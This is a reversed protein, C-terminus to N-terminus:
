ACNQFWGTLRDIPFKLRNLWLPVVNVTMPTILSKRILMKKKETPRSILRSIRTPSSEDSLFAMSGIIPAHPPMSKGTRTKKSTQGSLSSISRPDAIGIAVSMANENPISEVNPLRTGSEKFTNKAARATASSRPPMITM